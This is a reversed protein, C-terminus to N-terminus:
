PTAPRRDDLGGAAPAAPFRWELARRLAAIDSGIGTEPPAAAEVAAVARAEAPDARAQQVAFAPFVEDLPREEPLIYVVGGAGSFLPRVIQQYFGPAVNICGFTIRNDKPTPSRLRQPRREAPKNTVVPHLSIATGYDVWLVNRDHAGTGYAAVFRGAPTTREEPRIDSLERDGIGPTSEDGRASGVRAPTAGLLQGFPDFVFVEAATKDIIAFPLGRNDGEAIAWDALRTVTESAPEAAWAPAATWALSFTLGLVALARSKRM